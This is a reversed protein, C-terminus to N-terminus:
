HLGCLILYRDEPILEQQAAIKRWGEKGNGLNFLSIGVEHGDFTHFLGTDIHV